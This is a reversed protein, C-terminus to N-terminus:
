GAGGRKFLEIQKRDTKERLLDHPWVVFDAKDGVRLLGLDLGYHEVPNVCAARLVDKLDCGKALARRCLSDINGSMLEDLHLDDSCLMAREPNSSIISWLAEFNKASSGERILIKMGCAIKDLAEELTFCEHDTSMGRQEAYRRADEGRLGPAHGDVVKGVCRASEIKALLEADGSLGGPFNMVEALYHIEPRRMLEGVERPGLEAGATELSSNTAPVCSPAGFHIRLPTQKANEIMFDIGSVGLVNAIEHPDSVTAGVGCALCPPGFRSPVLMSSEFHVHANVLPPSIFCAPADAARVETIATIVGLDNWAVRGPCM